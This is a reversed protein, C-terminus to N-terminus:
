RQRATSALDVAAIPYTRLTAGFLSRIDVLFVRERSETVFNNM